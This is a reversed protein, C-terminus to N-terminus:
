NIVVQVCSIEELNHYRELNQSIVMSNNGIRKRKWTININECIIFSRLFGPVFLISIFSVDCDTEEKKRREITNLKSNFVDEM